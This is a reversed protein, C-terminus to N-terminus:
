LVRTAVTPAADVAIMVPASIGVLGVLDTARGHHQLHRRARQRWLINYPRLFNTGILTSGTLFEVKQGNTLTAPTPQWRFLEDASCQVRRPPTLSVTPPNDVPRCPGSVAFSGGSDIRRRDPHLERAARRGSSATPRARLPASERLVETSDVRLIASGHKPPRQRSTITAPAPDCLHTPVDRCPHRWAPSALIGACM